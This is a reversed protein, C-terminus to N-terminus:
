KDNHISCCLTGGDSIRKSIYNIIFQGYKQPAYKLPGVRPSTFINPNTPTIQTVPTIQTLLFIVSKRNTQINKCCPTVM